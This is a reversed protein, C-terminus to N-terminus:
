KLPLQVGVIEVRQVGDIQRFSEAFVNLEKMTASPMSVVVRHGNESPVINSGVFANSVAARVSGDADNAIELDFVYSIQTSGRPDIVTRFVNTDPLITAVWYTVAILGLVSAAAAIWQVRHSEKPRREQSFVIDLFDAVPPAPVLPTPQENEIATSMRRLELVGDRCEVCNDLHDAVTSREESSLTGNVYWPLLLKVEDVELEPRKM